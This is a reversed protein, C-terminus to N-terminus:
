RIGSDDRCSHWRADLAVYRQAYGPAPARLAAPVWSCQEQASRNIGPNPTVRRRM